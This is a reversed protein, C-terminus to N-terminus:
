RRADLWARFARFAQGRHVVALKRVGAVEGLTQGYPPYFFIPDYGFGEVGRPERAIEGEVTGRATFRMEDDAVYALECVFRATWPQPTSALRAYLNAFKDPYTAGPYRASHIGPEGGLADIELGSDEAVTPLGTMTAYARAKLEANEAFTAGTEEPELLAPFDALTLLRVPAGDLLAQIERLKGPNTTAVVISTSM